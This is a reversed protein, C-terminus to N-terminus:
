VDREVLRINAVVDWEKGAPVVESLEDEGLEMKVKGGAALTTTVTVEKKLAAPISTTEFELKAM